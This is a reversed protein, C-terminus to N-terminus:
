PAAAALHADIAALHEAKAAPELFSAEFSNRALSVVQEDSLALAARTAALNEGV